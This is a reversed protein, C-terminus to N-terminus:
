SAPWDQVAYRIPTAPLMLPPASQGAKVLIQDVPVADEAEGAIFAQILRVGSTPLLFGPVSVPARGMGALWGPRGAVPIDRPHVVQLDVAGGLLGVSLPKGRRMLVVSGGGAAKAVALSSLDADPRNMPIPSLGAQDITLPDIGSLRKLRGAMWEFGNGEVAIPGEAVHHEGAYVLLKAGPNQQLARRILNDTQDQEREEQQAPRTSEYSLLHYGLAMSQRLFDAFVPDDIYYGSSRRVYGDTSLKDMKARSAADDGDKTLTEVALLTYGLPRLARAVELGFARGRPDLHNEDLIVIRTHRAREIIAPLAPVGQANRLTELDGPATHYDPETKVSNFTSLGTMCSMVQTWQDFIDSDAIQDPSAVGLRDLLGYSGELYRGHRADDIAQKYAALLRDDNGATQANANQAPATAIAGGIMIALVVWSGHRALTGIMSRM